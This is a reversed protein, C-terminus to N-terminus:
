ALEWDFVADKFTRYDLVVVKSGSVSVCKVTLPAPNVKFLRKVINVHYIEGSEIITADQERTRGRYRM